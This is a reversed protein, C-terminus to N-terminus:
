GVQVRGTMLEELLARLLEEHLAAERELAAIAAIPPVTRPSPM